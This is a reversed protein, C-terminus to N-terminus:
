IIIICLKPIEGGTVKEEGDIFYYQEFYYSKLKELEENLINITKQTQIIQSDIEILVKKLYLKENEIDNIEM